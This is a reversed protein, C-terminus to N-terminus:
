LIQLGMAQPNDNEVMAELQSAILLWTSFRQRFLRHSLIKHWFTSKLWTSVVSCHLQNLYLENSSQQEFLFYLFVCYVHACFTNKKKFINISTRIVGSFMRDGIM